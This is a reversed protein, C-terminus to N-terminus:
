ISNYIGMDQISYHNTGGMYKVNSSPNDGYARDQKM